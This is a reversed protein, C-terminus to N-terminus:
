WPFLYIYGVLFFSLALAEKGPIQYIFLKIRTGRKESFIKVMPKELIISIPLVITFIIKEFVALDEMLFGVISYAMLILAAHLLVRNGHPSKIVKRNLGFFIVLWMLVLLFHTGQSSILSWRM